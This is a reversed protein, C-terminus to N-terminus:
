VQSIQASVNAAGTMLLHRIPLVHLTTSPAFRDRGHLAGTLHRTRGRPAPPPSPLPLRCVLSRVGPPARARVPAGQPLMATVGDDGWALLLLMMVEAAFTACT